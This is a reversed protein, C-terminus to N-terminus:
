AAPPLGDELLAGIEMLRVSAWRGMPHADEPILSAIAEGRCWGALTPEDLADVEVVVLAWDPDVRGQEFENRSIFVEGRWASRRTAKVELRRTEGNLTPAVVDYGLQDSILSVREVAAALDERGLGSLEDRCELVVHEEGISGVEALREANVRRGAQLLKAERMAPDALVTEIAERDRDPIVAVKVKTGGAASRLWDPPRRELLLDFLLRIAASEDLAAVTALAGGVILDGGDLEVLAVDVLVRLGVDFDSSALLGDSPLKRYSERADAISSAPTHLARAVQRASRLEHRTRVASESM